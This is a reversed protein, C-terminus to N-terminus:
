GGVIGKEHKLSLGDRPRPGDALQHWVVRTRSEVPQKAAVANKKEKRKPSVTRFAM